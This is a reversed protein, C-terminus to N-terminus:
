VNLARPSPRPETAPIAEVPPLAAAVAPQTEVAPARAAAPRAQPYFDRGKAIFADLAQVPGLPLLARVEDSTLLRAARERTLYRCLSGYGLPFDILERALVDVVTPHGLTREALARTAFGLLSILVADALPVSGHAGLADATALAELAEQIREVPASAPLHAVLALALEPRPLNRILEAPSRVFGFARVTALADGAEGGQLVHAVLPGLYAGLLAHLVPAETARSMVPHFGARHLLAFVTRAEEPPRGEAARVEVVPLGAELLPAYLVVDSVQRLPGAVLEPALSVTGEPLPGGEPAYRTVHVVPVGPPPQQPAVDVALGRVRRTRLDEALSALRADEADIVVHTLPSLEHERLSHHLALRRVFFISLAAKAIPNVVSRGCAEVEMAYDRAEAPRGRRAAHLMLEFCETYVPQYAPPLSAIRARTLAEFDVAVPLRAAASTQRRKGGGCELLADVFRMVSGDFDADDFCADVLGRRVAEPASWREGWLLADTANELGILRPLDQTSGFAPIFLYEAIETMYFHTEYTRAAVRYDCHLSFEVGCGYCNGRIAAITPAPFERVARYARTVTETMRPIDEPAQATGAMMLGVGNIFSGPKASRIVLARVREKDVGALIDLLQVAAEHSFINFQNGPTDLTLVLVDDVWQMGFLKTSM